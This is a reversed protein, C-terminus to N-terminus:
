CQVILHFPLWKLGTNDATYVRVRDPSSGEAVGAHFVIRDSTSAVYACNSVDRYFTIETWGPDDAKFDYGSVGKSSRVLIPIGTSHISVVAWETKPKKAEAERPPLAFLSLLGGLLGGFVAKLAKGRSLTDDAVGGALEDFSHEGTEDERKTM